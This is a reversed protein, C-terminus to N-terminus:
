RRFNFAYYEFRSDVVNEGKLEAKGSSILVSIVRPIKHELAM